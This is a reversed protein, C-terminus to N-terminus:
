PAERFLEAYQRVFRRTYTPRYRPAIHDGSGYLELTEWANTTLDVYSAGRRELYARLAAHYGSREPEDSNRAASRRTRVQVFTLAIENEKALELIDPLLSRAFEGSRSSPAEDEDAVTKEPDPRLAEVGFLGNIAEKRKRGSPGPALAQSLGVALGDVREWSEARLAEIPVFRGLGSAFGDSAGKTRIGLKQEIVSDAGRTARELREAEDGDIRAGPTLEKRRFFIVVRRPRVRSAVISHKLQAYWVSAKSGGVAIMGVKTPSVLRNLLELDFRTYVMSNGLLVVDPRQKKLRALHKADFPLAEPVPAARALLVVLGLAVFGCAVVWGLDLWRKQM